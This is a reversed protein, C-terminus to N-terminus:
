SSVPRSRMGDRDGGFRSLELKGPGRSAQLFRLETVNGARDIVSGNKVAPVAEKSKTSLRSSGSKGDLYASKEFVSVCGLPSCDRRYQFDTKAKFSPPWRGRRNQSGGIIQEINPDKFKLNALNASPGDRRVKSSRLNATPRRFPEFGIFYADPGTPHMGTERFEVDTAAAASVHAVEVM